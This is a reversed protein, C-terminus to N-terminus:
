KVAYFGLSNNSWKEMNKPPFHAYKLPYSTTYCRFWGNDEFKKAQALILLTHEIEPLGNRHHNLLLYTSYLDTSTVSFM